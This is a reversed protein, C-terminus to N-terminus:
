LANFIIMMADHLEDRNASEIADHEADTYEDSEDADDLLADIMDHADDYEAVDDITIDTMMRTAIENINM